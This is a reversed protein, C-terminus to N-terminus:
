INLNNSNFNIAKSLGSFSIRCEIAVSDSNNIRNKDLNTEYLLVNIIKRQLSSMLSYAHIIAVHKKIIKEALM